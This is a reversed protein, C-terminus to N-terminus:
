RHRRRDLRRRRRLARTELDVMHQHIREITYRCAAFADARHPPRPLRWVPAASRSAASVTTIGGRRAAERRALTGRISATSRTRVGQARATTRRTNSTCCRAGGVNHNRVLGLFTTVAGDSGSADGRDVVAAILADLALPATGIALLPIGM